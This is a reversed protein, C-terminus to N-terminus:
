PPASDPKSTTVPAPAFSPSSGIRTPLESSDRRLEALAAQFENPLAQTEDTKDPDVHDYSGTTFVPVELPDPVSVRPPLPAKPSRKPITHAGALPRPVPARAEPRSAVKGGEQHASKPVQPEAMAM